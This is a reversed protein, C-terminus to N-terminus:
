YSYQPISKQKESSLEGYKKRLVTAVFNHAEGEALENEEMQSGRPYQWFIELTAKSAKKPIRKKNRQTKNVSHKTCMVVLGFRQVVFRSFWSGKKM